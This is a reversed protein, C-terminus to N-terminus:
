LRGSQYAKLLLRASKVLRLESVVLEALYKLMQRDNRDLTRPANDIVCVSGLRVGPQYIIPAGAYFRINPSGVVFPNERFRGDKKTDSVVFLDDGKITENCFAFERPASFPSVGFAAKVWQTDAGIFTVLSIPTEFYLAGIHSIRDFNASPESHLLGFEELIKLRKAERSPM